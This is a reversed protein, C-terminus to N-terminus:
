VHEGYEAGGEQEPLDAFALRDAYMMMDNVIQDLAHMKEDPEVGDMRYLVNLEGRIRDVREELKEAPTM